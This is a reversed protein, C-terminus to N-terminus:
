ATQRKFARLDERTIQNENLLEIARTRTITGSLYFIRIAAIFGFKEGLRARDSLEGWLRKGTAKKQAITM